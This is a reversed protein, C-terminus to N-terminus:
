PLCRFFSDPLKILFLIPFLCAKSVSLIEEQCLTFANWERERVHAFLGGINFGSCQATSAEPADFRNKLLEVPYLSYDGAVGISMFFRWGILFDAGALATMHFHYLDMKVRLFDAVFFQQFSEEFDM